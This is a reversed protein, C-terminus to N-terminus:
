HVARQRLEQEFQVAQKVAETDVEYDDATENLDGEALFSKYLTETPIGIDRVVPRGFAIRPNVIILPTTNLPQWSQALDNAYFVSDFLSQEIIEKMEFNDNMLNLVRRETETEAFEMFIARGDTRFRNDMAFPHEVDYRARLREAVKRITQPSFGLTHFHNVFRAEILDLFGLVTKGAVRPIQRKIIPSADSNSYGDVWSRIKTPQASILRSAMPVTYLGIDTFRSWDFAVAPNM